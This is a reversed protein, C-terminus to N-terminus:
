FIASTAGVVCHSLTLFLSLKRVYKKQVCLEPKLKAIYVAELVALHSKNRARVQIAFHSHTGHRCVASLCAPSSTLHRLIASDKMIMYIVNDDNDTPGNRHYSNHMATTGSAVDRGPSSDCVSNRM